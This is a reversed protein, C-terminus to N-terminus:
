KAKQSEKTDEHRQTKTNLDSALQWTKELSRAHNVRCTKHYECSGTCHHDDNHIPFQGDRIGRVLGIVTSILEAKRHEWSENRLDLWPRYGKDRMFWYGCGAASAGPLLLREVVLAYIDLQMRTPSISGGSNGAYKSSKGTKYDVVGFITRGGAEGVDIRDIRGRLRVANDGEGVILPGAAVTASKDGDASGFPVEFHTPLLSHGHENAYAEFQEVYREVMACLLQYDIALLAADVPDDRAITELLADLEQRFGIIFQEALKGTPPVARNEAENLRRHAAAMADHLLRGRDRFDEQIGFEAQPEIKLVTSLWFRYPCTAYEELRSASIMGDPGFRKLLAERAAPSTLIGEYPGYRDRDQRHLLAICARALNTAAPAQGVLTRLIALPKENGALARDVAAVRLDRPGFLRADRPIPSLEAPPPPSATASGFIRIVEEVFPSPLLPEARANMAPFSLYLRRSARGVVEYFLLMENLIQQDRTVLRGLGHEVLRRRAAENLLADESQRAPFSQESLGAAFLYPVDLTRVSPAALVRVRGTEDLSDPLPEPLPEAALWEDILPLLQDRPVVAPPEGLWSSLRDDALLGDRLSKLAMYDQPEALMGLREALTVLAAAWEGATAAEPIAALAQDLQLLFEASITPHTSDALGVKKALAEVRALLAAQGRPIQIGSLIADTATKADDLSCTLGRPRVFNNGVVARVARHPWDDLHMELVARLAKLAPSDALRPQSEIAYPIGFEGFIERVRPAAEDLSRFVVVIDQPRVVARTQPDGDLLLQKIRVAVQEIEDVAQGAAIIKPGDAPAAPVPKRPNTFLHEELHWRAPFSSGKGRPSPRPSPLEDVTVQQGHRKQLEDLTARVKSFLDARRQRDAELPLSIWLEEVQGALLELIEHQTWTFDTFGDAVVLRTNAIARRHGRRLQERASWFRGEADYLQHRTLLDQYRRYILGLERDAASARPGAAQDLEDPWIEQRKLESVFGSLVDILGPSNAVGAFHDLQKAEHLEQVIRALLRRALGPSLPRIPEPSMELVRTAFREFTMVSPAFTAAFQGTLLRDRLAVAARHTPALWLGAGPPGDALTQRYRALLRETKGSGPPGVIIHVTGAVFQM